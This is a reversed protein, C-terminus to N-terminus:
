FTDWFTYLLSVVCLGFISYKVTALYKNTIPRAQTLLVIAAFSLFVSLMTITDLSSFQNLFMSHYLSIKEEVSDSNHFYRVGVWSLLAYIPFMSIFLGIKFKLLIEKSM